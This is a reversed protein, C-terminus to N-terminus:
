GSDIHSGAIDARAQKVGPHPLFGILPVRALGRQKLNQKRDLGKNEVLLWIEILRAGIVCYPSDDELLFRLCIILGRECYITLGHRTQKIPQPLVEPAENIPM